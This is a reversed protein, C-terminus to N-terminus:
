FELEGAPDYAADQQSFFGQSITLNKFGDYEVTCLETVRSLKVRRWDVIMQAASEDLSVRYLRAPAPPARKLLLAREDPTANEPIISERMTHNCTVSISKIGRSGCYDYLDRLVHSSLEQVEMRMDSVTHHKTVAGAENRSLRSMMFAVRVHFGDGEPDVEVRSGPPASLSAVKEIASQAGLTTDQGLKQMTLINTELFTQAFGPDHALRLNWEKEHRKRALSGSLWAYNTLRSQYVQEEHALQMLENTQQEAVAAARDASIRAQEKSLQAATQNLRTQLWFSEAILM